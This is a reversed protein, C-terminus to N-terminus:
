QHGPMSQCIWRNLVTPELLFEQCRLLLRRWRFVKLQKTVNPGFWLPPTASYQIHCQTAAAAWGGSGFTHKQSALEATSGAPGQWAPGKAPRVKLHTEQSNRVRQQLMVWLKSPLGSRQKRYPALYAQHKSRASPSWPRRCNHWSAKGPQLHRTATHPVEPRRHAQIASPLTDCHSVRMEWGCLSASRSPHEPSQPPSLREIARIFVSYKLKPTNNRKATQNRNM